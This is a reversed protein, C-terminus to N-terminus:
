GVIHPAIISRVLLTATFAVYADTISHADFKHILVSGRAEIYLFKGIPEYM